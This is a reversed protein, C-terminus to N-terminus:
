KNEDFPVHIRVRTGKERLSYISIGYEEGYMLQIIHFVNNLGVHNHLESEDEMQIPLSIEGDKWFGVGDDIVDIYISDDQEYIEVKVTGDKLSPEIGHVVANETVLQICLKPIYYELLEEKQIHIEYKLRDGFRFNQLELYYKTYELENKIKVKENENRYIKARILQAFSSLQKSIEENGDMKAQLAISNLTNFMFHPNMQMQFFKLKMDKVVLQKEYVQSVLHHIYETMGNFTVSIEHFENSDYEPLKTEFDGKQVQRLKGAIEQMPHTMKYTFFAFGAIGALLVIVIGLIYMSLSNYLIETAESSPVGVALSFALGLEKEYLRYSKGEYKKTYPEYHFSEQLSINQMEEEPEGLIVEDEHYLKWFSETYIKLDEMTKKIADANLQFLVNGCRSMDDNYLAYIFYIEQDEIVCYSDRDGADKFDKYVNGFIKNYHEVDVYTLAYYFDTYFTGKETILSVAEVVPENGGSLNAEDEIFVKEELENLIAQKEQEWAQEDDADLYEMLMESSRIRYIIERPFSIKGKLNDSVETLMFDVDKNAYKGFLQSVSMVFLVGCILISTFAIALNMIMMRMRLSYRGKEKKM